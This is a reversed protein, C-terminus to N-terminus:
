VKGEQSDLYIIRLLIVLVPISILVLMGILIEPFFRTELESVVTGCFNFMTHMAMPILISDYRYVLYGLLFGLCAAYIGQVLNMHFVGFLVAQILDAVLFGAGARRLYQYILGRFISEEVISPLVMTAIVWLLSYDSVGSMEIMETYNEMSSPFVVAVATLLLSVAHQVTLTLLLIWGFTVPRIRRTQEKLYVRAGKKDVFAFYYWLLFVTGTIVYILCTYLNQNEMLFGSADYIGQEGAMTMGAVASVIALLFASGNMIVMTLVFVLGALVYNTGKKM